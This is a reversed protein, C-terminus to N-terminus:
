SRLRTPARQAGLAGPCTSEGRRDLPKRATRFAEVETPAKAKIAEKDARRPLVRPGM